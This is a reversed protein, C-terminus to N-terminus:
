WRCLLFGFEPPTLTSGLADIQPFPPAIMQNPLANTARVYKKKIIHQLVFLTLHIFSMDLTHSPHLGHGFYICIQMKVLQVVGCAIIGAQFGSTKAGEFDIIIHL